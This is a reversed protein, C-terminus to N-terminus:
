LLVQLLLIIIPIGKPKAAWRVRQLIWSKINGRANTKVVSDAAYNFGVKEAMNKRSTSCFCMMAVTINLEMLQNIFNSLITKLFDFKCGIGSVGYGMSAAGAGIAMLFRKPM